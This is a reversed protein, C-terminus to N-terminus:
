RMRSEMQRDEETKDNHCPICLVWLNDLTNADVPRKFRRVPRLHDVQCTATTVPEGCLRCKWGDRQLVLYRLDAMGLRAEQGLWPNENLREERTLIVQTTYPNPKRFPVRYRRIKFQTHRLLRFNGVGLSDGAGFRRLTAPMSLRHKRALWHAFRWFTTHALKGFQPTAKGAYQFYRCWGEVLRNLATLKAAFADAHTRPSTLAQLTDLHRRMSKTSISVKTVMGKSAMGRQLHFGLFDFGDNLHTVKTKELSLSLHLSTSLFQHLEDRLALVQEHTGNSLVVFDDAYRVYAANALGQRRRRAKEEPTLGTYQEMFQDLEHLYINALLPSAIGGQPTGLKTDKFLKGEMVGARLFRWILDLLKDDAVRRRLLHVLRRHNITDFYASIDGEIVWFFKRPELTAWHICSIADMTCRNPRFGYSNQSFDAEFIPELVMRLAEQVIRDRISPIGLPRVKGNGKPICVRRVPCAEFAGAYLSEQLRKLNGQLDEDFASM